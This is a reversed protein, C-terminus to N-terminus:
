KSVVICYNHYAKTWKELEKIWEKVLDFRKTKTFEAIKSKCLEIAREYPNLEMETLTVAM